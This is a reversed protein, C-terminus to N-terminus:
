HKKENEVKKMMTDFMKLYNIAFDNAVKNRHEDCALLACNVSINSCAVQLAGLLYYVCETKTSLKRKFKLMSKEVAKTIEIAIDTMLEPNLDLYDKQM